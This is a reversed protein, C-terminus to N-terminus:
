TRHRALLGGYLDVRRMAFRHNHPNLHKDEALALDIEAVGAHVDAPPGAVLVRGDPAMVQSGGTFTLTRGARSETGYRNATIVYVGNEICRCYMARQCYPMVLNSPHAIVHAGNLALLRAVEPFTWDFCIMLGVRGAPTAIVPPPADGPDFLEVERSYLHAKRYPHLEGSPTALLCANYIRAGAREPYGVVVSAGLARSLRTALESSPGQGLPEALAALEGRDVFDYGSLALEPLVLLDVEGAQLALAELQAANEAPMGFAPAYQVYGARITAM